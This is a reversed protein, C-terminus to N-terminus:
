KADDQTDIINIYDIEKDVSTENIAAIIDMEDVQQDDFDNKSQPIVTENVTAVVDQDGYLMVGEEENGVKEIEVDHGKMGEAEIEKATENFDKGEPKAKNKKRIVLIVAVIIVIIIICVIVVVVTMTNSNDPETQNIEEAM